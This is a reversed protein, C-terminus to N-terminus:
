AGGALINTMEMSGIADRLMGLDQEMKRKTQELTRNEKALTNMQKKLSKAEHSKAELKELAKKLETEHKKADHELQYRQGSEKTLDKALQKLEVDRRQGLVFFQERLKFAEPSRPDNSQPPYGRTGDRRAFCSSCQEDGMQAIRHSWYMGLVQWKGGETYRAVSVADVVTVKTHKSFDIQPQKTILRLIDEENTKEM